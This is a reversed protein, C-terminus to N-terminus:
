LLSSKYAKFNVINPRKIFIDIFSFIGGIFVLILWKIGNRKLIKHKKKTISGISVAYSAPNFGSQVFVNRFGIKLFIKKLGLASFIVTHRPSHFGSWYNKFIFKEFSKTAPTQGEIFGTDNLKGFLKKIIEQPKPLHEITHNMTIIKFNPLNKFLYKADGKIIIVNRNKIIENNTSIEYGFFKNYPLKKAAFYIFNGDGCGYDLLSDDKELHDRIRVFRMWLRTRTLIGNGSFSHYSKPYFKQLQKESPMPSQSLSECDYCEKYLTMNKICYEHDFVYHSSKSFKCSCAGCYFSKIRM